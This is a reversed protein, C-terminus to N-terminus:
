SFQSYIGFSTLACLALVSGSIIMLHNDYDIQEIIDKQKQMKLSSKNLNIYPSPTRLITQESQISSMDKDLESRKSLIQNWQDNLPPIRTKMDQIVSPDVRKSEYPSTTASVMISMNHFSDM